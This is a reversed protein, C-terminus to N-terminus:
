SRVPYGSFADLRSVWRLVLDGQLATSSSWTSLSSTFARYRTCSVLVLRENPKIAGMVRAWGTRAQPRREGLSPEIWGFVEDGISTRKAPRTARALRGSGIGDRVRGDVAEAGITSQRLARSLLDSGPWGFAGSGIAECGEECFWCGDLGGAPWFGVTVHRPTSCGPLEDPEYGSPRLNLDQGRLWRNKRYLRLRDSLTTKQM